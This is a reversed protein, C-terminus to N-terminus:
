ISFIFFERIYKIYLVNNMPIGLEQKLNNEMIIKAEDDSELAKEECDDKGIYLHANGILFHRKYIYTFQHIYYFFHKM